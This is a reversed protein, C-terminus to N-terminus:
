LFLGRCPAHLSLDFYISQTEVLLTTHNVTMVGKSSLRSRLAKSATSLYKRKHEVPEGFQHSIVELNNAKGLANTNLDLHQM